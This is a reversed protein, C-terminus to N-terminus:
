AHRAVAAANITTALNQLYNDGIATEPAASKIEIWKQLMSRLSEPKVPKSLYDDMGCDLCRERDGKMANATMAVIPIHAATQSERARIQRTAEFGDVVPMQCDMFILDYERALWKVIAEEGNCALEVSAGLNELFRTAVKQNVLNDDVILVRSRNDIGSSAKPICQREQASEIPAPAFAPNDEIAASVTEILHWHRVPKPLSADVLKDNLFSSTHRQSFQTLLINKLEHGFPLSRIATCLEVGNMEPMFQDAIVIHFPRDRESMTQLLQLAHRPCATGEVIAGANALNELVARRASRNDDVVLVKIGALRNGSPVEGNSVSHIRFPLTFWFTSGKGLTSEFGIEGAMLEVLQRSIALGLGTNGHKRKGSSEAQGFPQFLHEKTEACVGVGTDRIEFRITVFDKDQSLVHPSLAIEGQLTFKIANALLNLIVQRFRGPDGQVFEPLEPNLELLIELGKSDARPAMEEMAEQMTSHLDFPFSEVALKGAEIKSFDLMSNIIGLLCDASRCVTEAFERQEPNLNSDLLLGTMGIIGNMPTRIEESVNALFQSKLRSSELALDRAETLEESQLILLAAQQEVIEKAQEARIREASAVSTALKLEHTQQILEQEFNKLSTIDTLSAEFYLQGDSPDWTPRSNELVPIHTGDKRRLLLEVSRMEGEEQVKLALTELDEPVLSLDRYFDLERLETESFGLMKELAPNASVIKGESTMRYVGELITEFLNRYRLESIRLADEAQKTETIDRLIIEVAPSGAFTTAFAAAALDVERGNPWTVQLNVSVITSGAESSSLNGWSEAVEQQQAPAVFELISHDTLEDKSRLGLLRATEPNAFVLKGEVEVIVGIPAHDTLQRYFQESKGLIEDKHWLAASIRRLKRTYLVIAMILASTIGVMVSLCGWLFTTSAAANKGERSTSSILENLNGILTEVTKHRQEGLFILQSPPLDQKMRADFAALLRISNQNAEFAAARDWSVRHKHSLAATQSAMQMATEIASEKGPLQKIEPITGWDTIQLRLTEALNNTETALQFEERLDNIWYILVASAAVSVLACM